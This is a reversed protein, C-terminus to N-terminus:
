QNRAPAAALEKQRSRRIAEAINRSVAALARTHAAVLEDYGTGAVAEHVRTRATEQEGDKMRRVTWMVELTAGEALASDFRQVDVIVRYDGEGAGPQSRPSVRANNLSQAVNTAVARAIGEKLPEAWRVQEAIRVESGRMRLVFQPRDVIDPIFVPGVTVGYDDSPLSALEGKGDSSLTYFQEKPASGCASLALLLGTILSRGAPGTM